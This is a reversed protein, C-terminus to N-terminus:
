DAFDLPLPPIRMQEAFNISNVFKRFFVFFFQLLISRSQFRYGARLEEITFNKIRIMQDTLGKQQRKLVGYVTVLCGNQKSMAKVIM